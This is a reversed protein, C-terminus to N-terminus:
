STRREYPKHARIPTLLADVADWGNRIRGRVTGYPIGRERTWAALCATRGDMTVYILDRQNRNQDARAVWRCNEPCYNGNSDIRDLSQGEAPSGMDDLFNTFRCWRDCVTIGRGGYNHYGTASPIRCRAIMSAWLKYVRTDTMGHKERRRPACPDPLSM